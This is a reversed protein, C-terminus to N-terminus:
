LDYVELTNHFINYEQCILKAQTKTKEVNDCVIHAMMYIQQGNM